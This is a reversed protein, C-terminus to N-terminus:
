VNYFACNQPELNKQTVGIQPGLDAEELELDRLGEFRMAKQLSNM